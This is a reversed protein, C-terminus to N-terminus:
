AGIQVQFNKKERVNIELVCKLKGCLHTTKGNHLSTIPNSLQQSSKGSTRVIDPQSLLLTPCPFLWCKAGWGEGGQSRPYGQPLTDFRQLAPALGPGPEPAIHEPQRAGTGSGLPLLVCGPHSRHGPPLFPEWGRSCQRATVSCHLLTCDAPCAPTGFSLPQRWVGPQLLGLIGLCAPDATSGPFRLRVRSVM